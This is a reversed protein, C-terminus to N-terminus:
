ALELKPLVRVEHFQEPYQINWRKALDNAANLCHRWSCHDKPFYWGNGRGDKWETWISYQEEM